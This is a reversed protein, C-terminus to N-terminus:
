LLESYVIIVCAMELVDLNKWTFGWDTVFVIYIQSILKKDVVYNAVM